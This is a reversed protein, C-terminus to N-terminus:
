TQCTAVATWILSGIAKQYPIKAMAKKEGDSTPCQDKSLKVNPDLPTACTKADQLNFRSIIKNIYAEQSINITKNMTDRKIILNLLWHIERLDKM